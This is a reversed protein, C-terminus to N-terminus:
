RGRSPRRTSAGVRSGPPVVDDAFDEVVAVVVQEVAVLVHDAQLSVVLRDGGARLDNAVVVQDLSGVGVSDALRSSRLSRRTRRRGRCSRLRARLAVEAVVCFVGHIM